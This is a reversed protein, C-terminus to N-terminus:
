QHELAYIRTSKFRDSFKCLSSKHFTRELEKVKGDYASSMVAYFDQVSSIFESYLFMKEQVQRTAPGLM